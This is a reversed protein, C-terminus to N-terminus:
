RDKYSYGIAWEVLDKAEKLGCGCRERVRKIAQIKNQHLPDDVFCDLIQAKVNERPGQLLGFPYSPDTERPYFDHNMVPKSVDLSGKRSAVFAAIDEVTFEGTGLAGLAAQLKTIVRNKAEVEGTLKTRTDTERREAAYKADEAAWRADSNDRARKFAGDLEGRLSESTKREAALELALGEATLTIVFLDGMLSNNVEHLADITADAKELENKTLETERTAGHIADDIAAPHGEYTVTVKLTDHGNAFGKGSHDHKKGM